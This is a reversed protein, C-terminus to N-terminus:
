IRMLPLNSRMFAHSVRHLYNEEDIQKEVQRDVALRAIYPDFKGSAASPHSQSLALSERLHDVARKTNDKEREVSNKFDGSLSKIEKMKNNLDNRLGNLQIIVDEEIDRARNSETVSVKAFGRLIGLADNIGGESVFERLPGLSQISTSVKVLSKARTEYSTQIERFYAILDKLFRRWAARM